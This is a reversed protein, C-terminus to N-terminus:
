IPCLVTRFSDQMHPLGSTISFAFIGAGTGGSFYRGRGFVVDTNYAFRSFDGNWSTYNEGEESTEITADGYMDTDKNENYNDAGNDSDPNHRYVTSYKTSLKTVENSAQTTAIFKDKEENNVIGYTELVLNGNAIYAAIKEFSGGSM